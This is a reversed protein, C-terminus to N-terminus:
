VVHLTTQGEMPANDDDIVVGGRRLVEKCRDSLPQKAATAELM